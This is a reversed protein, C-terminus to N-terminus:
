REVVSDKIQCTDEDAIPWSVGINCIQNLPLVDPSM